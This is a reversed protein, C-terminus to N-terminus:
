RRSAADPSPAASAHYARQWSGVLATVLLMSHAVNEMVEEMPVHMLEENPLLNRFVRRAILVSLVYAAMTGKLWPLFSGAQALPKLRERWWWALGILVLLLVYVGQDTWPYHIERLWAALAFGALLLYLLSRQWASRGILVVVVLGLVCVAYWENIRKEAGRWQEAQVLYLLGMVVPGVALLGPWLLWDRRKRMTNGETGTAACAKGGDPMIDIGSRTRFLCPNKQGVVPLM